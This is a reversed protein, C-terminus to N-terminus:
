RASDIRISQVNVGLLRTDNSHGLDKPHEADPTEFVLINENQLVNAPVDIRFEAPESNTLTYEAVSHENLKVILRQSTLRPPMLFPGMKILLAVPKVENVSFRFAASGRNTWHSFPERGSWGYWLYKDAEESGFEVPSGFNLLPFVPKDDFDSWDLKITAEPPLADPRRLDVVNLNCRELKLPKMSYYYPLLVSGPKVLLNRFGLKTVYECFQEGGRDFMRNLEAVYEYHLESNRAVYGTDIPQRHFTQLMAAYGDWQIPPANLVPGAVLKSLEAPPNFPERRQIPSYVEAVTWILVVVMLATAVKSGFRRTLWQRFFVLGFAAVIILLFLAISVFRVPTRGSDFPPLQMLLWYPMRANTERSLVKLTPGLSLVYFVLSSLFCARLWRNKVFVLGIVSFLLVPFGIFVEYGGKGNTQIKSDISEFLSGYLPTAHPEGYLEKQDREQGPVFFGVLNSSYYSVEDFPPNRIKDSFLMVLFPGLIVASLALAILMRQAGALRVRQLLAQREEGFTLMFILLMLLAMYIYITFETFYAAISGCIAASFLNMSQPRKYARLLFLGTLPIFFGALHNLHFFHLLYFDCFTYAVSFISAVLPSFGLEKLFLFTFFLILTFAILMIIKYSYLPYFPDGGTVLKVLLTIPFFGVVLTHHALKAGYPYFLLNTYYPNKGQTIAEVTAWLNWIMQGCDLGKIGVLFPVARLPFVHNYIMALTFCFCLILTVPWRNIFEKLSPNVM